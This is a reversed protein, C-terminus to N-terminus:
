RGPRELQWGGQEVIRGAGAFCTYEGKGGDATFQGQYLCNTADSFVIRMDSLYSGEMRGDVINGTNDMGCLANGVLCSYSGSISSGNQNLNLAIPRKYCNIGGNSRCGPFGNGVWAGGISISPQSTGAGGVSCCQILAVALLMAAANGARVTIDTVRRGSPVTRGSVGIV